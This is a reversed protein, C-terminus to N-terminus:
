ADAPLGAVTGRGVANYRRRTEETSAAYDVIPAPYGPITGARRWPEHLDRADVEALHPLWHKIYAADPDYTKSQASPNFIRYPPQADAGTSAVWQWNGNNSAQDYDNLKLAFYAEGRRWDVGLTKVLFSGAILRARNHMAGTTNLQTMAADVIPYGTAANKWADLRQEGLDGAVWDLDAYKPQYPGDAVRPVHYLLQSFYERWCVERIWGAVSADHVDTRAGLERFIRRISMTGFRLHIDLGSTGAVALTNRRALYDRIKEGDNGIFEDLVRVAGSTGPYLSLGDLDIDDFGLKALPINSPGEISRDFHAKLPAPDHDELVRGDEGLRRLWANYYPTFRTYPTGTKSLVEDKHLLVQDKSLVLARGDAELAAAVTADRRTATPEYDENAFVQGCDHRRALEPILTNPDGEVALLRGGMAALGAGAEEISAHIFAVRRDARPLEDLITRDYVFVCLVRDSAELAARLAANDHARLDRRMWFMARRASM